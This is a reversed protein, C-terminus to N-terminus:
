GQDCVAVGSSPVYWRPSVLTDPQFKGVGGFGCRSIRHSQRTLVAECARSVNDIKGRAQQILDDSTVYDKMSLVVDAIKGYGRQIM